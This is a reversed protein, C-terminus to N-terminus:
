SSVRIFYSRSTAARRAAIARSGRTANVVSAGTRWVLSVKRVAKWCTASLAARLCIRVWPRPPAGNPRLLGQHLGKSRSRKSQRDCQRELQTPACLPRSAPARLRKSGPGSILEQGRVTTAGAVARGLESLGCPLDRVLLKLRGQTPQPGLHDLLACLHHPR